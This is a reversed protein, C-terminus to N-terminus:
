PPRAIMIMMIIVIANTNPVTTYELIKSYMIRVGVTVLMRLVHLNLTESNLPFASPM